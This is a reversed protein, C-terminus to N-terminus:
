RSKVRVRIFLKKGNNDTLKERSRFIVREIGGGIDLPTGVELPGNTTDSDPTWTRM